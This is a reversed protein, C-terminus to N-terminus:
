RLHYEIANPYDKLLTYTNGLSYCAQAEVARDGLDQALLLTRKYHDAAREFEGLFIHANGLNSHARREAARDGFERAAVFLKYIHQTHQPKSSSLLTKSSPQKGCNESIQPFLSIKPLRDTNGLFFALFLRKKKFIKLRKSM